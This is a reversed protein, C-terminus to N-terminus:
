KRRRMKSIRSWLTISRGFVRPIRVLPIGERKAQKRQARTSYGWRAMAAEAGIKKAERLFGLSDDVLIVRSVPVGAMQAIKKIHGAKGKSAGSVINQGPINIGGEKLLQVILKKGKASAIFVAYNEQLNRILRKVGPFIRQLAIWKEPERAALDLRHSTVLRDFQRGKAVGDKEVEADFREQAMRKFNIGQNEQILRLITYYGGADKAFPKGARFLKEMTRTFPVSGGMERFALVSQAFTDGISDGIVGDFDLAIAVRPKEM